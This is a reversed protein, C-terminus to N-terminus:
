QLGPVCEDDVLFCQQDNDLYKIQINGNNGRRVCIRDRFIKKNGLEVDNQYCSYAGIQLRNGGTVGRGFITNQGVVLMDGFKVSERFQTGAGIRAKKGIRVSPKCKASKAIFIPSETRLENCFSQVVKTADQFFTGINFDIKYLFTITLILIHVGVIASILLVFSLWLYLM